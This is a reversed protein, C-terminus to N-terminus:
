LGDRKKAERLVPELAAVPLEGKRAFQVCAVMVKYGAAQLKKEHGALVSRDGPWLVHVTIGSKRAVLGVFTKDTPLTGAVPPRPAAPPRDVVWGPMGWAFGQRARPFVARVLRDLADHAERYRDDAAALYAAREDVAADACAARM